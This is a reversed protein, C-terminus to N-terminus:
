RRGASAENAPPGAAGLAQQQAARHKHIKALNGCREMSCWRRTGARSADVFLLACDQAACVRIRQGLPGTLLDIADRAIASLAAAASTAVSVAGGDDNMRLDPPPAAAFANLTAVPEADLSRDQTRARLVQWLADRLVHADAADHAECSVTTLGLVHSLWRQSSAADLLLEPEVWDGSGGTHVFDLCIRGTRFRKALAPPLRSRTVVLSYSFHRCRDLPHVSM